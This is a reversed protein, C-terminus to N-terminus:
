LPKLVSTTKKRIKSYSIDEIKTKQAKTGKTKKRVKSYPLDEIKTKQAKTGKTKERQTSSNILGKM